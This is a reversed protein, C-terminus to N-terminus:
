GLFLSGAEYALQRGQVKKREFRVSHGRELNWLRASAQMAGVTTGIRELGRPTRRFVLWVKHVSKRLLDFRQFRKTVKEVQIRQGVSHLRGIERGDLHNITKEEGIGGFVYTGFLRHREPSNLPNLVAEMFTPKRGVLPLVVRRYYDVRALHNNDSWAATRVLPFANRPLDVAQFFDMRGASQGDFGIPFNSRQNFRIHNLTPNVDMARCLDLAPVHRVFEFDHQVALLYRTTIEQMAYRMVGTLCGWKKLVHIEINPCDKCNRTLSSLYKAYAEVVEKPSGPKFWDHVLLIRTEASLGLYSLSEVTRSIIRTSPHSPIPSAAVVVTLLEESTTM